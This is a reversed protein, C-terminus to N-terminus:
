GKSIGLKGLKVRAGVGVITLVSAVVVSWLQIHLMMENFGTFTAACVTALGLVLVLYGSGRHWKWVKKANEESGYLSPTFYMTFGVM